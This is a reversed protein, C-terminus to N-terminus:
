KKVADRVADKLGGIANQEKGEANDTKGESQLKADGKGRRGGGKRRGEGAAGIGRCSGKWSKRRRLDVFRGGNYKILEQASSNCVAIM